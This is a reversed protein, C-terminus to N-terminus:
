SGPRSATTRLVPHTREETKKDAKKDEAAAGAGALAAIAKGIEAAAHFVQNMLLDGNRFHHHSSITMGDRLGARKLAEKIGDVRKDGDTPYDSCSRIPAAAKARNPRDKRVGQFPEQPVGNVASPVLRGAANEIPPPKASM